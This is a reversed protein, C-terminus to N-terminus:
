GTAASGIRIEPPAPERDLLEILAERLSLV